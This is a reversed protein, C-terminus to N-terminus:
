ILVDIKEEVEGSGDSAAPHLPVPLQPNYADIPDKKSSTTDVLQAPKSVISDETIRLPKDTILKVNPQNFMPYWDDLVLIRKCGFQHTPRLKERTIPDKVTSELHHIAYASAQAQEPTGSLWM